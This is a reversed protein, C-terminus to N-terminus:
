LLRELSKHIGQQTRNSYQLNNLIKQSFYTLVTMLHLVIKRKPRVKLDNEGARM